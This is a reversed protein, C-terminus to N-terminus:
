SGGGKLPYALLYEAPHFSRIVPTSFPTNPDLRLKIYVEIGSEVCGFVWIEKGDEDRDAEPGKCYDACSLGCVREIAQEQTMNLTLLGQTNKRTARFRVKAGFEICMRFQDLFAQVEGATAM